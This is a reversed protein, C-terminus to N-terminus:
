EIQLFRGCKAALDMESWQAGVVEGLRAATLIAFELARAGVGEHQRLDSLFAPLESYPLAAHHKKGNIKTPAALSREVRWAARIRAKLDIAQAAAFNLIMEMGNRVRIRRPPARMGSNAPPIATAAMSLSNWFPSM